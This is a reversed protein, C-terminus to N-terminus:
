RKKGTGCAYCKTGAAYMKGCSKCAVKGSAKTGKAYRTPMDPMPFSPTTKGPAMMPPKPKPTTSRTPNSKFPTAKKEPGTMKKYKDTAM